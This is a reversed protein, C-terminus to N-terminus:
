RPATVVVYQVNTGVYTPQYWVTGCQQYLMTGYQVPVCAPPLTRTMSGIVASTVAVGATVAVATAFPNYDDHVDIDVHHYQNVNVNTNRNVNANANVNRNVNSNANINRDRNVNANNNVSTRTTNRVDRGAAQAEAAGFSAIYLTCAASLLAFTASRKM